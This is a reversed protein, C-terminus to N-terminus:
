YFKCLLFAIDLEGPCFGCVGQEFCTLMRKTGEWRGGGQEGRLWVETQSDEEGLPFSIFSNFIHCFFYFM